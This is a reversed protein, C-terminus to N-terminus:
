HIGEIVCTLRQVTEIQRRGYVSPFLSRTQKRPFCIYILCALCWSFDRTTNKIREVWWRPWCNQWCWQFTRANSVWLHWTGARPLPYTVSSVDLSVGDHVLERDIDNDLGKIPDQGNSEVMLEFGAEANVEHGPLSIPATSIIPKNTLFYFLINLWILSNVM